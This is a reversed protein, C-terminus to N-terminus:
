FAGLQCSNIKIGMKECASSIVMKPLHCKAALSFVM